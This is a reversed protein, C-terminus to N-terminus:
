EGGAILEAVIGDMEALHLPRMSSTQSCGQLFCSAKHVVAKEQHQEEPNSIQKSM